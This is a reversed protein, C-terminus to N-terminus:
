GETSERWIRLLQQISSDIRYGYERNYKVFRAYSKKPTETQLFRMTKTKVAELFDEAWYYQGASYVGSAIDFDAHAVCKQADTCAPEYVLEVPVDGDIVFVYGDTEPVERAGTERFLRDHDEKSFVFVDVDELRTGDFEARVAGGVVAARGEEVERVIVAPLHSLFRPKMM